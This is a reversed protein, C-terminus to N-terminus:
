ELEMEFIGGYPIERDLAEEVSIEGSYIRACAIVGGHTFIVVQEYDEELLEEMFHRVREYQDALSEGRTAATHFADAQWHQIRPDAIEDFPQMEWDGLDIELLRNDPTANDYGCYDALRTCRSLPSTFAADFTGYPMLCAKTVSAELPFTSKLPVDTQGYSVGPPVAVSTHRVFVLIM